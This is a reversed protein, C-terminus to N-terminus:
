PDCAPGGISISPLGARRAASTTAVLDKVVFEGSTGVVITSECPARKCAALVDVM